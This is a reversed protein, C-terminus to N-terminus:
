SGQSAATLRVDETYIAKGIPNGDQDVLDSTSRLSYGLFGLKGYWLTAFDGPPMPQGFPTVAIRYAKMPGAPTDLVEIGEVREPWPFDSRASWERGPRVPYLLFIVEANAARAADSARGRIASRIAEVRSEFREISAASAGRRELAAVNVLTRTPTSGVRVALEGPQAAPPENADVSYLGTRDQRLRTWLTFTGPSLGDLDTLDDQRVFYERGDRSETGVIQDHETGHIEDISEPPGIGPILRATTHREYDWSNGIALPYFDGSGLGASLASASLSIQDNAASRPATPNQSCSLSSAAVLISLARVLQLRM